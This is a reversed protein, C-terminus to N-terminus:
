TGPVGAPAAASTHRSRAGDAGHAHDVDRAGTSASSAGSRGAGLPPATRSPRPHRASARCARAWPPEDILITADTARVTTRAHDPGADGVHDARECRRGATEADRGRVRRFALSDDIESLLLDAISPSMIVSREM